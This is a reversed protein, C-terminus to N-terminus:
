SRMAKRKRRWALLGLAGLGTAFLPLAAPVPVHLWSAEFKVAALNSPIFTSTPRVM